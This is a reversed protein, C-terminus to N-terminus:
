RKPVFKETSSFIRAVVQQRNAVKRVAGEPLILGFDSLLLDFEAVVRLLDGPLRTATQEDAPLWTVEIRAPVDATVGRLSLAGVVDLNVPRGPELATPRTPTKIQKLEFSVTPHRAVDLWGEGRLHQDRLAIGTTLTEAKLEFRAQPENLLNAPDVRVTGTVEQTRTVMFELPAESTITVVDRHIPDDTIFALHQAALAAALAATGLWLVSLRRM